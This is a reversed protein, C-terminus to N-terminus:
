KKVGLLLLHRNVLTWIGANSPTMLFEVSIVNDGEVIFDTSIQYIVTCMYRQPTSSLSVEGVLMGTIVEDGNCRIRAHLYSTGSYAGGSLYANFILQVPQGGSDITASLFSVYSDTVNKSTANYAAVPVTVANNQIHLTGIAAEAIFAESIAAAAMYTSINAANLQDLTAFWGQNAIAAATNESTVDANDAPKNNGYIADWYIGGSGLQLNGLADYIEIGWGTQLKGLIVRTNGSTDKVTIRENMGDILVNQTAGLYIGTAKIIGAILKSASMTDIHASKVALTGINATGVVMNAQTNWALEYFGDYHYAIQWDNNYNQLGEFVSRLPTSQYVNPSSLSWYVYANTTQGAAIIYETGDYWLSHTNWSFIGGVLSWVEGIHVPVKFMNSINQPFRMMETTSGALDVEFAMPESYQINNRDFMDFAGVRLYYSGDPLVTTLSTTNPGVLAQLTAESPTFDPGIPSVHVEYGGLDPVTVSNWKFVVSSMSSVIESIVAKPAQENLLQIASPLGYYGDVDVAYVQIYVERYPGGVMAMNKAFTFEFRNTKGVTETYLVYSPTKPDEPRYVKVVYEQLYDRDTPTQEEWTIIAAVGTFVGNVGNALLLNTPGTYITTMSRLYADFYSFYPISDEYAVVKVRRPSVDSALLTFIHSTEDQLVEDIYWYYRDPTGRFNVPTATLVIQSPEIVDPATRKFYWADTILQIWRSYQDPLVGITDPLEVSADTSTLTMGSFRGVTTVTRVGFIASAATFTPLEFFPSVTRGIERFKPYGDDDMADGAFWAYIVYAAFDPTYVSDWTLSGSSNYVNATAPSYSLGEPRPVITNYINRPQVYYDDAVNWALQTYDFRSGDLSVVDGEEVKIGDVRIYVPSNNGGFNLTESTLKIFDGPEFYRGRAQYKLKITFASRSVRVYQEAKALAHYPDIVGGESFEAELELGEDEALMAGYVSSDLTKTIFNSYAPSRTSWVIYNGLVLQAAVGSPKDSWSGNADIEMRYVMDETPSGLSVIDDISSSAWSKVLTGTLHNYLRIGTVSAKQCRVKFNHTGNEGARIAFCWSFQAAMADFQWVAYDVTFRDDWDGDSQPYFFGGIGTLYSGNIKPPWSVSDSKFDEYENNFKVICHNLRDAATPWTIEIPEGLVLDDDTLEAEIVIQDNDSPYQMSLKYKGGSWVLRADGMTGLIEEINERISKSPDIIVNCEYLPLDVSSIDRSGDTPKYLKGGVLAGYKVVQACIYAAAEFSDLDLEDLEVGKGTTNDLLYDLLCWAPNTSYVRETGLVGNSVTRVKRGEILFQLDPCASFQPDDRNLKVFCSAYAMDTFVADKREPYNAVALADAVGGDNHIDIRIAAKPKEWAGEQLSFQPDDVFRNDDIVVDVVQNIPGQCIAQQFFLYANKDGSLNSDLYGSQMGPLTVQVTEKVPFGLENLVLNQAEDRVWQVVNLVSSSAGDQAGTIVKDSNNIVYVFNSKTNHYVRVGGILARGYVLPLDSPEGEVPIEFGKRAEAAAEAERRAKDREKKAKIQQYATAAISIVLFVLSFPDVGM